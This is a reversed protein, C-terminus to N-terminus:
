GKRLLVNDILRTRGIYVALSALAGEAAVELEEMSDPDALSVYDPRGLPEGALTDHMAARLDAAEKTGSRFASLCAQLARYLVTAAKREDASLYVNRSSM